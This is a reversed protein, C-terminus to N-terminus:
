SIPEPSAGVARVAGAELLPLLLNAAGGHEIIRGEHVRDVNVGTFALTRGTPRLGLWEGVHKGTAVIGSVVLDGECIQRRVQIRLGAYTTRVGPVHATMGAIGSPVRNTEKLM